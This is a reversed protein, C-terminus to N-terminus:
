ESFVRPSAGPMSIALRVALISAILLAGTAGLRLRSSM